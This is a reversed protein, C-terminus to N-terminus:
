KVSTCFNAQLVDLVWELQLNEWSTQNLHVIKYEPPIICLPIIFAALQSHFYEIDLAQPGM